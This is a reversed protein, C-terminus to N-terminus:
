SAQFFHAADAATHQPDEEMPIHGLGDYWILQSGPIAHHFQEADAPPIWRDNRGWMILTPVKITALVSMDAGKLSPLLASIAPRSGERRMMDQYRLVTGEPVRSADGYVDHVNQSVMFRPTFHQSIRDVVPMQMLRIPLPPAGHFYGASDVLILKKVHEPHRAAYQWSIMGGLSNGALYFQKLGLQAVLADMFQQYAAPSMTIGPLPGTVGFPPMDVSIVHYRGSLAQSWGDWTDASSAFGHILLVTDGQGAEKIRVQAGEVPIYRAGTSYKARMTDAPIDTLGLYDCGSLLPTLAILALWIRRIGQVRM